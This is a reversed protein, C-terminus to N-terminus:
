FQRHVAVVIMMMKGPPSTMSIQKKNILIDKFFFGLVNM